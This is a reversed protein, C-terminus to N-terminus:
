NCYRSSASLSLPCSAAAVACVQDGCDMPAPVKWPLGPEAPQQLELAFCGITYRGTFFLQNAATRVPQPIPVNCRHWTEMQWLVRGTALEIGTLM